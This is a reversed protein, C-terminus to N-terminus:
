VLGGVLRRFATVANGEYRALRLFVLFAPHHFPDDLIGLVRKDEDRVRV